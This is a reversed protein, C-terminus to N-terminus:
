QHCGGLEGFVQNPQKRVTECDVSSLNILIDIDKLKVM